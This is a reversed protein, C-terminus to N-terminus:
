NNIYVRAVKLVISERLLKILSDVDPPIEQGNKRLIARWDAPNDTESAQEVSIQYPENIDELKKELSAEFTDILEIIVILDPLKFSNEYFFPLLQALLLPVFKRPMFKFRILHFLRSLKKSFANSDEIYQLYEVLVAYPALCQRIVPHVVFSPDVKHTIINYILEDECPKGLLLSSAFLVEWVIYHIKEMASTSEESLSEDYCNVFMNMAEYLHGDELSREGQQLYLKNITRTLKLKSCITLAWELDDNTFCQYHPLFQDVVTKSLVVNEPLHSILPKMLIGLAVPVLPHCELCEFAHRILFYDSIKRQSPQKPEELSKVLADDYYSSLLGKLEFLKGIYAATAPDYRDVALIVRLYRGNFLDHYAEELDSASFGKEKVSLEYYDQFVDESDDRVQFLSLAGYLEYWSTVFSSVTKPFGTIVGLLDRIQSAILVHEQEEIGERLKKFNDRMECATRKWEPFLGKLAMSTYSSILTQFDSIISFLQPCNEELEAFKSNSISQNAIEFMGRTLLTGLYTTWFQPHLYPKPSGYMIDSIWDNDPKPDYKNIWSVILEPKQRLQPAFENAQICELLSQLDYYADLDEDELGAKVNEVFTRYNDLIATFAQNIKSLKSEQVANKGVDNLSSILGIPEDEHDGEQPLIQVDESLLEEMIKYVSTIYLEQERAFGKSEGISKKYSSVDFQFELDARQNLWDELPPYVKESRDLQTHSSSGMSDTPSLSLSSDDPVDLMEIDDFNM